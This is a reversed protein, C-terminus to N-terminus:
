NRNFTDKRELIINEYNNQLVYEKLTSNQTNRINSLTQKYKLDSYYLFNVPNLDESNKFVDNYFLKTSKKSIDNILISYLHSQFIIIIITFYKLNMISIKVLKLCYVELIIKMMM